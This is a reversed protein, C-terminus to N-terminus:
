PSAAGSRLDSIEFRFDSVFGFNLDSISLVNEILPPPHASNRM